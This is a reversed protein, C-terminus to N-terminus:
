VAYTVERFTSVWEDANFAPAVNASFPSRFDRGRGKGFPPSIKEKAPFFYLRVGKEKTGPEVM